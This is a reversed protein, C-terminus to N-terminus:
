LFQEQGITVSNVPYRDMSISMRAGNQTKIADLQLIKRVPLEIGQTLRMILLHSEAKFHKLRDM